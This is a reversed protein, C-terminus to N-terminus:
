VNPQERQYLPETAPHLMREARATEEAVLEKKSLKGVMTKPLEARIEVERPMEIKSVYGTLFRCLEEPTTEAGDKLTVFAKPAQGRYRDPVGIVVADKVSPHQYLAEELVRPYINFGGAIIVDKIRDVLFLYGESDLYGVDGTRLAGDIMVDRTDEPRNWYGRMVQPGRVCIEGRTGQPLLRSPNEPDRIEITTGLVPQGVSGDKYALGPPTMTAVPSTESLGYGEMLWCGTLEMFKQRVEVPLPAGGSMCMEICRLDVDGRSAAEVLASYITPVAPFMTPRRRAITKLVTALDFRPLLVLEAAVRVGLIMVTSLAFVHFLPLVGLVRETGVPRAGLGLYTQEANATLNAHTLEAAKPVGTTGGTYQLVAVADCDEPVPRLRGDNRMIDSAAVSCGDQRLVSLDRRKALRFLCGTMWPLAGAMSCVIISKLGATAAVRAVKPYIAALDITVMIETGSDAIQHALEREVYLPNFNVVIGGARLIAFFFIVSYPTNPLCLGVRTGPVVGLAQLGKAAQNVAQDLAAYRWSRGLFDIARHNPFDRATTHLLAHVSGTPLTRAPAAYTNTDV